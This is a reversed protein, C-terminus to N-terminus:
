GGFLADAISRERRLGADSRRVVAASERALVAIVRRPVLAAEDAAPRVDAVDLTGASWHAAIDRYADRFPVGQRVRALAAHTAYLEDGMASRMREGDFEVAAVIRQAVDLLEGLEVAAAITPSKTLQLDRHYSSPLKAIVCELDTARARMRASKGRLLELVDPNRKQPMISSGTTFVDPLRAFGFAPMTWFMLDCALKEVIRTCDAAFRVFALECEGRSNQVDIPSRQARSFGLLRATLERNLKLPAGFGAGSGLPCEDLRVLLAEGARAERLLAEAIAHLWQGVSSPMAPQMHTFGPMLLSGDRRLREVVTSSFRGLRGLADHTQRRLYLRMAAAVQDNRSRGTHIRRGAEGVRRVLEVEIATHCDELSPDIRFRGATARKLIARLAALLRRLDQDSLVGAAHITRAHAASAVCDTGVLHVDIHPDDGVTFRHILEDLPQGKDWLRSPRRSM